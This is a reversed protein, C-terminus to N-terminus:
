LLFRSDKLLIAFRKAGREMGSRLASRLSSSRRVKAELLLLEPESSEPSWPSLSAAEELQRNLTRSDLFCISLADLSLLSLNGSFKENM